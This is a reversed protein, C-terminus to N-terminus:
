PASPALVAPADVYRARAADALDALDLPYRRVAGDGSAVLLSGDSPDAALDLVGGAPVGFQFYADGNLDFLRVVDDLGGSVLYERGAIVASTLSRVEHRHAPLAAILTGAPARWLSVYGNKQGAALVSGGALFHLAEISAPPVPQFRAVERWAAVDWLIITGAQDGSAALQGDPAVAVADIGAGHGPAQQALRCKGDVIQWVFLETDGRSGTIVQDAAVWAVADVFSAARNDVLQGASCDTLLHDGAPMAWRRAFGRNFGGLLVDGDADSWLDSDFMDASSTPVYDIAGTRTDVIGIVGDGYAGYTGGVYLYRGDSSVDLTSAAAGPHVLALPLGVAGDLPWRRIQGSADVSRVIRLEQEIVADVIVDTHGAFTQTVEGTAADWLRVLRDAGGSVLQGGEMHLSTVASLHGEETVYLPLRPAAVAVLELLQETGRRTGTLVVETGDANFALTPSVATLQPWAVPAPADLFDWRLLSTEVESEAVSQTYFLTPAGPAFTATLVNPAPQARSAGCGGADVGVVYIHRADALAVWDGQTSVDLLRAPTAVDLSCRAWVGDAMTATTAVAVTQDALLVAVHQGDASLQVGQIDTPFDRQQVVAWDPAARLVLRSSGARSLLMQGTEAFGLPTEDAPLQAMAQLQSTSLARILSERVQVTNGYAFADLGLQLSANPDIPLMQMSAAALNNATAVRWQHRIWVMAGLGALLLVFVVVSFWRVVRNLRAERARRTAERASAALFERDADTLRAPHRAAWHTAAELAAGRLLYDANGNAAAWAQADRQFPQLNAVDWAANDAVIPAVLRDHVLECWAGGVRPEIRVLGQAVLGDVAARPLGAVTEQAADYRVQGRFRADVILQQQVWDRLMRDPHAADEAVTAVAHAYFRRLADDVDGYADIDDESVVGDDAADEWVRRCVVQLQLPDVDLSRQLDVTGDARTVRVTRLQTVLAHAAADTFDVGQDLAPARIAEVAAAASLRELRYRNTFRTPVEFRFPDLAALYDERLAFLAWRHPRSLAEGLQRFFALKAERADLLQAVIEEFQDFILLQPRPRGDHIHEFDTLCADITAWPPADDDRRVPPITADPGAALAALTAAICPNADDDSVLGTSFFGGVRITPFIDFLELAAIDPRLAAQILSTKGAGSPSYLLVIREGILFQRM